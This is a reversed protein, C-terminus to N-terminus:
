ANVLRSIENTAIGYFLDKTLYNHTDFISRDLKTANKTKNCALLDNFIEVKIILSSLKRKIDGSFIKIPGFSDIGFKALYFAIITEETNWKKQSVIKSTEEPYQFGVDAVTGDFEVIVDKKIARVFLNFLLIIGLALIGLIIGITLSNM